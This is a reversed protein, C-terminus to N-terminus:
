KIRKTKGGEILYARDVEQLSIREDHTILLIDFNLDKCLQKVFDIFRPLYESSIQTWQEDLAIFRRKELKILLSIGFVFSIVALFGGGEDESLVTEFDGKNLVFTGDEVSYRVTYDEQFVTRIASNALTEAFKISNQSLLPKVQTMALQCRELLDQKTLLVEMNDQSVQLSTELTRQEQMLKDFNHLVLNADHLIHLGDDTLEM